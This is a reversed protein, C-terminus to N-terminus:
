DNLKIGITASLSKLLRRSRLRADAFAFFSFDAASTHADRTYPFFRKLNNVPREFCHWSIAAAALLVAVNIVLYTHMGVTEWVPYNFANFIWATIGPIFFHFVYIGYSVKGSYSLPTSELMAGVRGPLGTAFLWVIAMLGPVLLVRAVYLGESQLHDPVPIITRLLIWAIGSITCLVIIWHRAFKGIPNQFMKRHVMALFAGGALSDLSSLPLVNVAVENAHLVCALIFRFVPGIVVCALVFAPLFRRPIFLMLLPWFLYFQEEVALSWFHSVDGLYEGRFAFLFNSLYAIHWKVSALVDPHGLVYGLFLTGYFLPFIRLFRRIYFAKLVSQRGSPTAESREREGLLIGTILFGSIIFFLQVGVEGNFWFSNDRWLNNHYGAWHSFIVMSVAIARLADLQKFYSPNSSQPM